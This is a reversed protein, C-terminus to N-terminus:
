TKEPTKENRPPSIILTEGLIFRVGMRGNRAVPKIDGAMVRTGFAGPDM